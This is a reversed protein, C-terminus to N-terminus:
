RTSLLSLPDFADSQLDPEEDNFNQMADDVLTPILDIANTFDLFGDEDSGGGTLQSSPQGLDEILASDIDQLVSDNRDTEEVSEAVLEGSPAIANMGMGQRRLHNLVLLADLPTVESDRNVDLFSGIETPSQEGEGRRVLSNLVVLADLPTTIGDINTDTPMMINTTPSNSLAETGASSRISFIRNQSQPEFIISYLDGAALDATVVGNSFQDIPTLEGNLIRISQGLLSVGVPTVSVTTDILAQFIIATPINDGPILHPRVVISPVFIRTDILLPDDNRINGVAQGTEIVADGSSDFITVRFQEDPEVTEDGSVNIVITQESQGPLFTVTDSPFTGGFDNADVAQDGTGQVSFSLTTAANLNGQRFVTFTFQTLGIDGELRAANTAVISLSPPDVPANLGSEFAGIDVGDGQPRVVGRQDVLLGALVGMSIAPSTMSLAITETPGGNDALELLGADVNTIDSQQLNFITAGSSDGILNNGDSTLEGLIDGDNLSENEAIISNITNLTGNFVALGSGAAASNFAITVSTLSVNGGETAIGGGDSAAVNNAITSNVIAIDGATGDNFVGGGIGSTSNQSVTSSSITMTGTASNWLGGGENAATNQAITSDVIEVVGNNTTHLGGGNGPAATGTPGTINQNLRISELTTFSGDTVEIGGGARNSRNSVIDSNTVTLSGGFNLIGGGSGLTGNAINNTITANIVELTGGNNFLGGGGDDAGNGSAINNSITTGTVTMTGSGNWLGGGELAALNGSATGGVITANGNGTIHFGGGNGPAATGIPGAVNETMDVNVITTSSGATAEIGGGARNAINAFLTSDSIDLTGGLNFIAGGSGSAGNAVNNSFTSNTITLTGSSFIAGGGQTASDGKAVSDSVVVNNLTLSQGEAVSIAGGSEAVGSTLTLGDISVVTGIQPDDGMAIAFLQTSQDGSIEITSANGLSIAVADNIELVSDLTIVSLGEAFSITDTIGPGADGALTDANVAANANAALVAERLSLQGDEAVIDDATTVVYQALVRRSELLEGNLIRCRSQPRIRTRHKSTEHKASTSQRFIRRLDLM